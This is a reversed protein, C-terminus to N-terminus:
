RRGGHDRALGYTQEGVSSASNMPLACGHQATRHDGPLRHPPILIHFRKIHEVNRESNNPYGPVWLSYSYMGRVGRCKEVQKLKGDFGM